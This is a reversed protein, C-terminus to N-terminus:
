QFQTNVLPNSSVERREEARRRCGGVVVAVGRKPQGDILREATSASNRVIGPCSIKRAAVRRLMIVQFDATRGICFTSERPRDVHAVSRKDPPHTPRAASPAAPSTEDIEPSCRLELIQVDAHIHVDRRANMGIVFDAKFTFTTTEDTVPCAVM